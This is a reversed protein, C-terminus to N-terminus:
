LYQVFQGSVAALHLISSLFLHLFRNRPECKLQKTQTSKKPKKMQVSPHSYLGAEASSMQLKLYRQSVLSCCVYLQARGKINLFAEFLSFCVDIGNIFDQCRQPFIEGQSGSLFQNPKGPIPLLQQWDKPERLWSM